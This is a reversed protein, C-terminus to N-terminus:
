EARHRDPRVRGRLEQRGHTGIAQRRMRGPSAIVPRERVPLALRHPLQKGSPLAARPATGARFNEDFGQLVSPRVQLEILYEAGVNLLPPPNEIEVVLDSAQGSEIAAQLAAAASKSMSVELDLLDGEGIAAARPHLTFSEFLRSLAARIAAVGEADQIEGVVARRIESLHELVKQEADEFESNQEVERQASALREAEARSAELEATLEPEMEEWHKASLDGNMYDRRVRALPRASAGRNVGV